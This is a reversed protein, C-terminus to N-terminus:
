RVLGEYLARIVNSKGIGAVEELISICPFNTKFRHLAHLFIRRQILNLRRCMMLYDEESMWNSVNFYGGTSSETTPNVNWVQNGPNDVLYDTDDVVEICENQMAEEIAVGDFNLQDPDVDELVNIAEDISAQDSSEYCSSNLKIFDINTEYVCRFDINDYDIYENRWTLYLMLQGRYFNVEDQIINYRRFCIFNPKPRLGIYGSDKLPFLNPNDLLPIDEQDSNGDEFEPNIKLVKTNSQFDYMAAFGAM